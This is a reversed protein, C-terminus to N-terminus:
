KLKKIHTINCYELKIKLYNDSKKKKKKLCLVAYSIRMLSQLESTHEESRGSETRCRLLPRPVRDSRPPATVISACAAFVRRCNADTATSARRSAGSAKPRTARTATTM